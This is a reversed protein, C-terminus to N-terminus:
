NNSVLESEVDAAEINIERRLEDWPMDDLARAEQELIALAKRVRERVQDLQKRAEMKGLAAQVNTEDVGRRAINLERRIAKGIERPSTFRDIRAGLAALRKETPGMTHITM